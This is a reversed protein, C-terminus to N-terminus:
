FKECDDVTSDGDGERSDYQKIIVIRMGGELWVIDWGIWIETLQCPTLCMAIHM